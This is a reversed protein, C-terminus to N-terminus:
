PSASFELPLFEASIPPFPHFDASPAHCRRPEPLPGPSASAFPAAAAPNVKSNWPTGMREVSWKVIALGLGLGDVADRATLLLVPMQVGRARLAKLIEIGGRGPLMWDLVLLDFGGTNLLFVRDEGTKATVVSFGKKELGSQLARATKEDDEIILLRVNSYLNPGAFNVFKFRAAVFHRSAPPRPDTQIGLRPNVTQFVMASGPARAYYRECDAM